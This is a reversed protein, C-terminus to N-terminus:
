RTKGAGGAGTLSLLRSAALVRPLEALKKRRRIFSTLESPLNHRPTGPLPERGADHGRRLAQLDILLEQASQYRQERQKELCKGIIRELEAPVDRNYRTVGEPQSHTILDITHLDTAGNFPLRGTAMQYLVVG